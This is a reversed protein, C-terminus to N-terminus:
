VVQTLNIGGTIAYLISQGNYQLSAENGDADVIEGYFIVSFQTGPLIPVNLSVSEDILVDGKVFDTSMTTTIDGGPVPKLTFDKIGKTTAHLQAHLVLQHEDDLGSINRTAYCQIAYNKVM